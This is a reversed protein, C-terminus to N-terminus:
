RFNFVGLTSTRRYEKEMIEELDLGLTAAIAAVYFLVRGLETEIADRCDPCPSGILHTNMYKAIDSIPIDEPVAQRKARVELCGCCTVAKTIARNARSSAEQLKSLCDLISKHRILHQEVSTQFAKCDVQQVPSDM